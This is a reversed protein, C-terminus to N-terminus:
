LHSFDLLTHIIDGSSAEAPDALYILSNLVFRGVSGKIPSALPFCWSTSRLWELRQACPPRRLVYLGQRVEHRFQQRFLEAVEEDDVILISVSM